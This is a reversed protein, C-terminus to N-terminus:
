RVDPLFLTELIHRRRGLFQHLQHQLLLDGVAPMRNEAPHHVVDVDAGVRRAVDFGVLFFGGLLDVSGDGSDHRKVAGDAAAIHRGFRDVVRPPQQKNSRYSLDSNALNM